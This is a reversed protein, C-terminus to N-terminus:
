DYYHCHMSILTYSKFPNWLNPIQSSCISYDKLCGIKFSLILKLRPAPLGGGKKKTNLEVSQHLLILKWTQPKKWILKQVRVDLYLVSFSLVPFQRSYTGQKLSRLFLLVDHSVRVFNAQTKEKVPYKFRSQKFIIQAITCQSVQNVNPFTFVGNLARCSPHGPELKQKM